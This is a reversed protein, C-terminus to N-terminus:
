RPEGGGRVDVQWAILFAIGILLPIMGGRGSNVLLAIGVGTFILGPLLYCMRPGRPGCQDKLEAIVEPTVPMGKEIMARLTEHMLSLRRHKFYLIVALIAVPLGYLGVPFWVSSRHFPMGTPRTSNPVDAQNISADGSAVQSTPGADTASQAALGASAALLVIAAIVIKLVSSMNQM